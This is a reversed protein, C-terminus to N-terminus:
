LDNAQARRASDGDQRQRLKTNSAHTLQGRLLALSFAVCWMWNGDGSIDIKGATGRETNPNAGFCKKSQAAAAATNARARAYAHAAGQL